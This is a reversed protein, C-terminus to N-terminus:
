RSSRRRRASSSRGPRRSGPRGSGTAPGGSWRSCRARCRRSGARCGTASRRPRDLEVAAVVEPQGREHPLGVEVRGRGTDILVDHRDDDTGLLPELPKGGRLAGERRPSAGRCPDHGSPGSSGGGLGDSGPVHANARARRTPREARERQRREGHLPQGAPQRDDVVQEDADPRREARAPLGLRGDAHRPVAREPDDGRADLSPIPEREAVARPVLNGVLEEPTMAVLGAPARRQTRADRRLLRDGTVRVASQAPPAFARTRTRTSRRAISSAGGPM